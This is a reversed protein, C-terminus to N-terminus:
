NTTWLRARESKLNKKYIEEATLKKKEAMPLDLKLWRAVQPIM